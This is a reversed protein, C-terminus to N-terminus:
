RIMRTLEATRGPAEPGVALGVWGDELVLQTIMLGSLRSDQPDSLKVIPIHQNEDLV